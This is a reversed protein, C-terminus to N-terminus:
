RADSASKGLILAKIEHKLTKQADNKPLSDMAFVAEPIKFSAVGLEKLFARLDAVDPAPPNLPVIAAFAREGTKADPLGVIAVDRINPHERLYDEVEKPSINEGNRIIIDKSRGSVVLYDEDVWRGLDGTRYYGEDDFVDAEQEVHLYGVLM